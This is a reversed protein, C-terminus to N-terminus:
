EEEKEEKAKCDKCLRSEPVVRLIDLSIVNGCEECIGYANAGIKDLALKVDKLREKLSLLVAEQNVIEETEDAEEELSDVDSGMDTSGLGKIEKELRKKEQKLAAELKVIEQKPIM